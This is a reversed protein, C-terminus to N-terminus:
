VLFGGLQFKSHLFFPYLCSVIINREKQQRDKEENSINRFLFLILM